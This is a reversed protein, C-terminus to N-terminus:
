ATVPREIQRLRRALERLIKPVLGPDKHLLERFDWRLISLARLPTAAIVSATRPGGDLLSVEGFFDGPILTAVTRGRRKVTAEGGVIVYFALGEEGEEAIVDGTDFTVEKAVNVVRKLEKRTLGSFLPVATLPDEKPM